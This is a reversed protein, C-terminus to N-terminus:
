TLPNEPVSGNLKEPNFKLAEAIMLETFKKAISVYDYNQLVYKRANKQLQGYLEGAMDVCSILKARFEAQNGSSFMIANQHRSRKNNIENDEFLVPLGCAQAELFSMSCQKPYVALDAAKYFSSLSFYPQTPFRLVKNESQSLVQEVQTGYEGEVNGVIVFVIKKGSNSILREKISEALFLGGKHHDLKGAYLVVFDDTGIHNIRRFNVREDLDINFYTTDTGHPLLVTENLPIGLSKEVYDSDEVRIIPIKNRRIRPAILNKYFIRFLKRFRNKSAMELMHSDSVLPYNLKSSRLIYQIAILTDVGHVLLVDPKEEDVIKFIRPHYIARGSMYGILPVRIIRVGTRQFFDEDKEIINTKGFFNTLYDPIKSLESTVVVVKHGWASQLKSLQNVQYGADPHFFDEIHVFKM